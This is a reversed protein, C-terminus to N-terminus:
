SVQPLTARSLAALRDVIVALLLPRLREWDADGRVILDAHVRSPEVYRAHGVRACERYYTAIALPDRLGRAGSMDRLLRRLAREDADLEVFLRLDLRQRLRSEHLVMLGEIILIAPSAAQDILADLDHLLREWVVSEPHNADFMVAGTSPSVFTPADPRDRQMYRDAALVVPPQGLHEGLAGALAVALTSKGAASGGAIGVVLSRAM